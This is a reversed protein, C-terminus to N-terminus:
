QAAIFVQDVNEPLNLAEPDTAVQRVRWRGSSSELMLFSVSQSTELVTGNVVQADVVEGTPENWTASEVSVVEIAGLDLIHQGTASAEKWLAPLLTVPANVQGTSGIGEWTQLVEPNAIASVDLRTAGRALIDQAGRDSALFLLAFAENEFLEAFTVAGAEPTSLELQGYRTNEGVGGSLPVDPSGSLMEMSGPCTDELLAEARAITEPSPVEDVLLANGQMVACLGEDSSRRSENVLVQIERAAALQRSSDAEAEATLRDIEAQIEASAESTPCQAGDYVRVRQTGCSADVFLRGSDNFEVGGSAIQNVLWVDATQTLRVRVAEGDALSVGVTAVSEGGSDSAIESSVVEAGALDVLLNDTKAADYLFRAIMPVASLSHEEDGAILNEPLLFAGRRLETFNLNNSTRMLDQQASADFIFFAEFFDRDGFAEILSGVAKGPTDLQLSESIPTTPTLEVVVEPVTTPAISTTSDPGAADPAAQDSTCATTVLAFVVLLSALLRFSGRVVSAQEEGM